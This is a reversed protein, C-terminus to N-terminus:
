DKGFTHEPLVRSDKGLSKIFLDKKLGSVWVSVFSIRYIIPIYLNVTHRASDIKGHVLLQEDTM